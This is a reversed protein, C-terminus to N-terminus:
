DGYVKKKLDMEIKVSGLIVAGMKSISDAVEPKVTGDKLGKMTEWMMDRLANFGRSEDHKGDVSTERLVTVELKGDLMSNLGTAPNGVNKQSESGHILKPLNRMESSRKESLSPLSQSKGPMEGSENTIHSETENETASKEPQTEESTSPANRKGTSPTTASGNSQALKRLTEIRSM